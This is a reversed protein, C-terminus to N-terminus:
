MGTSISGFDQVTAGELAKKLVADCLSDIWTRVKAFEEQVSKKMEEALAYTVDTIVKIIWKLEAEM